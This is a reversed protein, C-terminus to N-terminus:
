ELGMWKEPQSSEGTQNLDSHFEVLSENVEVVGDSNEVNPPAANAANVFILVSVSMMLAFFCAEFLFKWRELM